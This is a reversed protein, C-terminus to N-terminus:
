YIASLHIKEHKNHKIIFILDTEQNQSVKHTFNTNCLILISLLSLMTASLSIDKYQINIITIM